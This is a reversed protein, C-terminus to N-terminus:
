PHNLVLKAQPHHIVDDSAELEYIAGYYVDMVHVKNGAKKSVVYVASDRSFVHGGSLQALKVVKGDVRTTEM